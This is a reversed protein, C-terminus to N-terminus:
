LFSEGNRIVRLDIAEQVLDLIEAKTPVGTAIANRIRGFLRKQPGNCDTYRLIRALELLTEMHSM